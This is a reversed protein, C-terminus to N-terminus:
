GFRAVANVKGIGVKVCPSSSDALLDCVRQGRITRLTNIADIHIGVRLDRFCLFVSKLFFSTILIHFLEDVGDLVLAVLCHDRSFRSDFGSGTLAIDIGTDLDDDTDHDATDDKGTEVCEEIRGDHGGERGLDALHEAVGALLELIHPIPTFAGMGM